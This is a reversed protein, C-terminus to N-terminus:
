VGGQKTPPGDDLDPSFGLEHLCRLIQDLIESGQGPMNEEEAVTLERADYEWSQLIRIKQDTDLSQEAVVDGPTRFVNAPDSLAKEFEM